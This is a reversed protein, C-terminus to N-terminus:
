IKGALKITSKGSEIEREMNVLHGTNQYGQTNYRFLKFPSDIITNRDVAAIDFDFDTLMYNSDNFDYSQFQGSVKTNVTINANTIQGDALPMYVVLNAGTAMPMVLSVNISILGNTQSPNLNPLFGVDFVPDVPTEGTVADYAGAIYQEAGAADLVVFFVWRMVGTFNFNVNVGVLGGSPNNYHSVADTYPFPHNIVSTQFNNGPDSVDQPFDVFVNQSPSTIDALIFQTNPNRAEADNNGTGGLYSFLAFPINGYWRPAVQYPSYTDNYYGKALAAYPVQTLRGYNPSSGSM